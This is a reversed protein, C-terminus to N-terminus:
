ISEEQLIKEQEAYVFEYFLPLARLVTATTFAHLHDPIIMGLQHGSQIDESWDWPHTDNPQPIHLIPTSARWCGNAQQSQELYCCAASIASQCEAESCGAFAQLALATQFPCSESTTDARWGGGPLQTQLLFIRGRQQVEQIDQKKESYQTAMQLARISLATAYIDGHWWYSHWRGDEQQQHLLFQVASALVSGYTLKLQPYSECVLCLAIVVAATVCIQSMCWGSFDTNEDIDMIPALDKTQYQAYTSFGGDARQFFCLAAIAQQLEALSLRSMMFPLCAATSDADTVVHRHYGWGGEPFQEQMLWNVAHDLLHNTVPYELLASAVYGTIWGTSVGVGTCFDRWAGELDQSTSLFWLAKQIFSSNKSLSRIQKQRLAISYLSSKLDQIDRYSLSLYRLWDKCEAFEPAQLINKLCSLMDDIATQLTQSSLFRRKLVKEGLMSIQQESHVGIEAFFHLLLYSYQKNELDKQWDEYDDHLQFYIAVEDFLNYLAKLKEPRDALIALAAVACKAMASKGSAIRRFTTDDYSQEIGGHQLTKEFLCAQIFDRQHHQFEEWFPSSQPFYRYLTAFSQQLFFTSKLYLLTHYHSQSDSDIIGDLLVIHNAYLRGALHINQVATELVSPFLPWFLTVYNGYLPGFLGNQPNDVRSSPFVQELGESTLVNQDLMALFTEEVQIQQQHAALGHERVKSTM